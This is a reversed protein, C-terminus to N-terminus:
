RSVPEAECGREDPCQLLRGPLGAATQLGQLVAISPPGLEPWSEKIWTESEEELYLAAGLLITWGRSLQNPFLTEWTRSTSAPEKFLSTQSGPYTYHMIPTPADPLSRSPRLSPTGCWSAGCPSRPRSGSLLSWLRHLWDWGQDEKLSRQGALRGAKEETLTIRGRRQVTRLM